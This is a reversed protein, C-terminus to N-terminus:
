IASAPSNKYRSIKIDIELRFLTMNLALVLSSGPTFALSLPFFEPTFFATLFGRSLCLGRRVNPLRFRERTSPIQGGAM